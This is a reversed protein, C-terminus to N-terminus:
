KVLDHLWVIKNRIETKGFIGNPDGCDSCKPRIRLLDRPHGSTVDLCETDYSLDLIKGCGTCRCKKNAIEYIRSAITKISENRTAPTTTIPSNGNVVLKYSRNREGILLEYQTENHNLNVLICIFDSPLSMSATTLTDDDLMADVLETAIIKIEQIDINM